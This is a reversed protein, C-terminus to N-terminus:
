KSNKNSSMTKCIKVSQCFASTSLDSLVSLNQQEYLSKHKAKNKPNTQCIFHQVKTKDSLCILKTVKKTSLAIKNSLCHQSVCTKNAVRTSLVAIFFLAFACCVTQCFVPQRFDIFM